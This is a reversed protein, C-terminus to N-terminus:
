GADLPDGASNTEPKELDHSCIYYVKGVVADSVSQTLEERDRFACYAQYSGHLQIEDYIKSVITGM